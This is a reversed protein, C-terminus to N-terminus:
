ASTRQGKKLAVRKIEEGAFISNQYRVAKEKELKSM